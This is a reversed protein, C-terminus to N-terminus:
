VLLHGLFYLLFSFSSSSKWPGRKSKVIERIEKGGCAGCLACPFWKGRLLVGLIVVWGGVNLCILWVILCLRPCGLTVSFPMGYFM